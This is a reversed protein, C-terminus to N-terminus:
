PTAAPGAVTEKRVATAARDGARVAKIAAGLLVYHPCPPGDPVPTPATRPPTRHSDPRTILVDGEASEPAPAFGIGGLVRLLTGPPAQAPLVTRALLRLRLEATRRDALVEALLATDDCRLYSSAAGVRLVGHR